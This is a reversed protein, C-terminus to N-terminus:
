VSKRRYGSVCLILYVLNFLFFSFYIYVNLLQIENKGLVSSIYLTVINSYACNQIYSVIYIGLLETMWATFSLIFLILGKGELLKEIELHLVKLTHLFELKKYNGKTGSALIYHKSWFTYLGQFSIYFMVLMFCFLGLLIFISANSIKFFLSLFLAVFLLGITDVFRDFLSIVIGKMSNNLVKGLSYWRYVDGLKWPFVCVVIATKFFFEFFSKRSVYNGHVELYLRISKMLNVLIFTGIMVAITGIKLDKIVSSNKYFLFFLMWALALLLLDIIKVKTNRNLNEM